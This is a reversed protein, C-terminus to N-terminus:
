LDYIVEANYESAITNVVSRITNKVWDKSKNETGFAGHLEVDLAYSIPNGTFLLIGAQEWAIVDYEMPEIVITNLDLQHINNKTNGSLVPANTQLSTFLASHIKEVIEDNM